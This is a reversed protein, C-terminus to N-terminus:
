SRPVRQNSRDAESWGELEIEAVATCKCERSKSPDRARVDMTYGTKDCGSTKFGGERVGNIYQRRIKPKRWMDYTQENGEEEEQLV